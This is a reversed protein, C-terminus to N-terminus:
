KDRFVCKMVKWAFRMCKYLMTKQLTTTVGCPIQLKWPLYISHPIKSFKAMDLHLPNRHSFSHGNGFDPGVDERPNLKQHLQFKSEAPIPNLKQYLQINRQTSNPLPANRYCHASIETRYRHLRASYGRQINFKIKLCGQYNSRYEKLAQLHSSLLRFMYGM